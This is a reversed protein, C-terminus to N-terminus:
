QRHGTGRDQRAENENGQGKRSRKVIKTEAKEREREGVIERSDVESMERERKFQGRRKRKWEEL